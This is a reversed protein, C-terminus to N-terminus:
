ADKQGLLDNRWASPAEIGLQVYSELQVPGDIIDQWSASFLSIPAGNQWTESLATNRTYWIQDDIKYVKFVNRQIMYLNVHLIKCVCVCQLGNVYLTIIEKNLNTTLFTM